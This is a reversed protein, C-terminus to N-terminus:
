TTHAGRGVSPGAASAPQQHLARQTQQATNSTIFHKRYSGETM